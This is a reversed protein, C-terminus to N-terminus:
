TRASASRTLCPATRFSWPSASAFPGCKRKPSANIEQGEVQISGVDPKLFGMLMRLSVSKGVGSRGLICLTEGRNVSFSVNELVKRGDFSISVNRSLSSPGIGHAGRRPAPKDGAIDALVDQAIEPTEPVPVDQSPVGTPEPTPDPLPWPILNRSSGAGALMARGPSSGAPHQCQPVLAAPPVALPISVQGAQLLLEVPLVTFPRSLPEAAAESPTFLLRADQSDLSSQLAPLAAIPRPRRSLDSHIREVSVFPSPPNPSPEAHHLLYVILRSPLLPLDVPLFVALARRFYKGLCCLHRGAPRPRRTPDDLLSPCLRVPRHQAGAIRPRLGAARLLNCLTRSLRCAPSSSDAGQRPGHPQVTRRRPRIRRRIAPPNPRPQSM